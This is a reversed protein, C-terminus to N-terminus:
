THTCGPLNGGYLGNIVAQIRCDASPYNALDQPNGKKNEMSIYDFLQKMQNIISNDNYIMDDATNYFINKILREGAYFDAVGTFILGNSDVPANKFENSLFRVIAQAVIFAFGSYILCRCRALGGQIVVKKRSDYYIFSRANVTDDSWDLYFDIDPYYAKFINFIQQVTKPIAVNSINYFGSNKKIDAAQAETFFYGCLNSAMPRPVSDGVEVTVSMFSTAPDVTGSDEDWVELLYETSIPVAPATVTIQKKKIANKDLDLVSGDQICTIKGQMISDSVSWKLTVGASPAPYSVDTSFEQIAPTVTVPYVRSRRVFSNSADGASVLLYFDTTSELGHVTYSYINSNSTKLDPDCTTEHAAIPISNFVGRDYYQLIYSALYLNEGEWYLSVSHGQTVVPDSSYFDNLVFSGPFKPVLIQGTSMGTATHESISIIASGVKGNIQVDDFRFALGEQKVMYPPAPPTIKIRGGSLSAYTWDKGPLVPTVTTNDILDRAGDGNSFTFILEQLDVPKRGASVIITFSGKGGAQLVSPTTNIAYDLILGSM